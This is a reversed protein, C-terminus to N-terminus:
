LRAKITRGELGYKDKFYHYNKKQVVQLNREKELYNYRPDIKKRNTKVYILNFEQRTRGSDHMLSHEQHVKEYGKTGEYM